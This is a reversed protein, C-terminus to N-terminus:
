IRALMLEDIREFFHEIIRSFMHGFGANFYFM